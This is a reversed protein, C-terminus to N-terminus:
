LIQIQNLETLTDSFTNTLPTEQIRDLKALNTESSEIAITKFSTNLAQEYHNVAKFVNYAIKRFKIENEPDLNFILQVSIRFM